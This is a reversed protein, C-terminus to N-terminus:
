EAARRVDIEEIGIESALWQQRRSQALETGTDAPDIDVVVASVIKHKRATATPSQRHQAVCPRPEAREHHRAAHLREIEGAHKRRRISLASHRQEDALGVVFRGIDRGRETRRGDDAERNRTCPSARQRRSM